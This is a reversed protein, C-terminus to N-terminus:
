KVEVDVTITAGWGTAMLVVVQARDYSGSRVEEVRGTSSANRPCSERVFKPVRGLRHPIPREIGDELQVDPIIVSSASAKQLELIAAEHSRRVREADQDALKASVPAIYRRM